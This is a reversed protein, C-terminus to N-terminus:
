RYTSENERFAFYDAYRQAEGNGDDYKRAEQRHTQQYVIVLSDELFYQVRSVSPRYGAYSLHTDNM